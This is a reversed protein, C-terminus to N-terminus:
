KPSNQVEENFRALFESYRVHEEGMIIFPVTEADPFFIKFEDISLDFGLIKEVFNQKHEMLVSKVLDCALCGPQTYVIVNM